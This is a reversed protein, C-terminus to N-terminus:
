VTRYVLCTEIDLTIVEQPGVHVYRREQDSRRDCRIYWYKQKISDDIVVCIRSRLPSLTGADPICASVFM